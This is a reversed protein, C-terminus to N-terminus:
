IEKRKFHLHNIKYILDSFDDKEYDWILFDFDSIIHKIFIEDYASILFLSKEIIGEMQERGRWNLIAKLSPRCYIVLPHAGKIAKYFDDEFTFKSEGRLTSGYVIEEFFSFREYIQNDLFIKQMHSIMEEKTAKPGVSRNINMKLNEGLFNTLTTKGTNDMGLVIINM